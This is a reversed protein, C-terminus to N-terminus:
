REGSAPLSRRREDDEALAAIEVKEDRDVGRRLPAAQACPQRQRLGAGHM